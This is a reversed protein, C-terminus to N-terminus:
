CAAASEPSSQRRPPPPPASRPRPAAPWRSAARWSGQAPMFVHCFVLQTAGHTSRPPSAPPCVRSLAFSDAAAHGAAARAAHDHELPSPQMAAHLRLRSLAFSGFWKVPSPPHGPVTCNLSCPVSLVSVACLQSQKSLPVEDHTPRISLCYRTKQSSCFIKSRQMHLCAKQQTVFHPVWVHKCFTSRNVIISNEELIVALHWAAISAQEPM